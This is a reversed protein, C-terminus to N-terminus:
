RTVQANRPATRRMNGSDAGDAKGDTSAGASPCPAVAAAASTGATGADDTPQPLPRRVCRATTHADPRRERGPAPLQGDPVNRHEDSGYCPHLGRQGAQHLGQGVHVVQQQHHAM